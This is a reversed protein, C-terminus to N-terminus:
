CINIVIKIYVFHLNFKLTPDPVLNPFGCFFFYETPDAVRGFGSHNISTLNTHTRKNDCSLNEREKQSYRGNQSCKGTDRDRGM